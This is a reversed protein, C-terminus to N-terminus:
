NLRDLNIQTSRFEFEIRSMHLVADSGPRVIWYGSSRLENLTIGRGSHHTREHVHSIILSTIHSSKPLIVPNKLTCPLNAKRIRGGVRMVGDSDLVPDLTRLFSTNKFLAKKEKDSERSRYMAKAQIDQLSKM